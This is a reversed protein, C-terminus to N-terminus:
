GCTDLFMLLKEFMDPEELQTHHYFKEKWNTICIEAEETQWEKQIVEVIADMQEETNDHHVLKAHLPKLGTNHLECLGDKWFTCGKETRTAWPARCGEAGKMAMKIMEVESSDPWDDYMLRDGYGAEILANVEKPTPCCPARCMGSCKECACETPLVDM